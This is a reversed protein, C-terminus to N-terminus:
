YRWDEDVCLRRFLRENVEDFYWVDRITPEGITVKISYVVQTCKHDIISPLVVAKVQDMDTLILDLLYDGRTPTRVVEQLGFTKCFLEM